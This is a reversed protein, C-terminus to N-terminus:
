VNRRPLTVCPTVSTSPASLLSPYQTDCKGLVMYSPSAFFIAIFPELHMCRFLVRFLLHVAALVIMIVERERIDALKEEPHGCGAMGYPWVTRTVTCPMSHQAVKGLVKCFIPLATLQQGGRDYSFSGYACM